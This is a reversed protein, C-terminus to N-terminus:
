SRVRALFVHHASWFAQPHFDLLQQALRPNFACCLRVFCLSCRRHLGLLSWKRSAVPSAAQISIQHQPLHRVNHPWLLASNTDPTSPNAVEKREVLGLFVSPLLSFFSSSFFLKSGSQSPRELEGHASSEGQCVGGIKLAAEREATLHRGCWGRSFWASRAASKQHNLPMELDQPGPAPADGAEKVETMAPSAGPSPAPSARSSKRRIPPRLRLLLFRHGFVLLPLLPLSRIGLCGRSPHNTTAEQLSNQARVVDRCKQGVLPLGPM